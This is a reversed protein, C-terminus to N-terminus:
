EQSKVPERQVVELVVSQRRAKMAYASPGWCVDARSQNHMSRYLCDKGTVGSNAGIWQPSLRHSLRGSLGAPPSRWVITVAVDEVEFRPLAAPLVTARTAIAPAVPKAPWSSTRM